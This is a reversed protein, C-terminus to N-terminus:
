EPNALLKTLEDDTLDYHYFQSYFEKVKAKLNLGTTKDPYLKNIMWYMGVIQSPGPPGDFWSFPNDPRIAVSKNQVAKLQSWRADTLITKFLTAQSGRGIIIMEPNWLLIQELSADAMGYGPKLTVQAVNIGGCFELLRTHMSGAPDTSFGEKGEAYYVKVKDKDPITAVIKNVYDMTGKYYSILKGAQSQVGLLEGLFRIEKEYGTLSDDAYNTKNEGAYLGVVPIDGFKEQREKINAETGELIIDPKASIFTEYNGTQTGFWGGIVTLNKCKDPVLPPNGNFSFSLGVLKDPVLLYVLEMEIPGSTLVRNITSPITLTRGYMDTIVRTTAQPTPPKTTVTSAAAPKTASAAPTTSSSQPSSNETGCGALGAMMFIVLFTLITISLIKTKVKSEMRLFNAMPLNNKANFPYDQV